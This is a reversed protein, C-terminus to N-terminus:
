PAGTHSEHARRAGFWELLGALLGADGGACEVASLGHERV